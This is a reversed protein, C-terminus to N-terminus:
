PMLKEFDEYRLVKAPVYAQITESAVRETLKGCFYEPNTLDLDSLDQPSYKWWQLEELQAIIAHSFRDKIKRAPVGGVVSYPAVDKTVVANAAVVAGDGITVGHALTVNEGIWVDNGINVQEVTENFRQFTTKTEMDAQYTRMLPGNKYFSPSTSVRGLPHKNGMVRVGAAISTYRGIHVSPHMRSHVYSFAGMTVMQTASGSWYTTYPEMVINPQISIIAEDRYSKGSAEINPVGPGMVFIRHDVLTSRIHKIAIKM